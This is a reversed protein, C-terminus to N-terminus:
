DVMKWERLTEILVRVTRSSSFFERILGPDLKRQSARLIAESISDDQPVCPEIFAKMEEYDYYSENVYCVVPTGVALAEISVIGYIAEKGFWDCLVDIRSLYRPMESHPVIESVLNCRVGRAQLKQVASVVLNSGKIDRDTPFHGIVLGDKSSREKPRVDPNFSETDICRPLFRADSDRGLYEFLDKTTVFCREEAPVRGSRLETGNFIMVSHKSKVLPPVSLRLELDYSEGKSKVM